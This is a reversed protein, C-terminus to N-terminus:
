PRGALPQSSHGSARSGSLHEDPLDLASPSQVTIAKLTLLVLAVWVLDAVLLHILQLPLPALLGLNLMGIMLQVVVVTIVLGAQRPARRMWTSAIWLIYTAAAVALLPHIVRLRLLLSSTAAMDLQVGAALSHSPFLMDGLATIAGAVSVLATAGLAIWLPRPTDRLRLKAVGSQALWATATLMALLLFTNVLHASLSWVRGASQDKAVFRFLVLGAGILAEVLLFFMSWGSFRRLVHKRPYGLFAWVLLVLTACVDVGSMLRHTFEIITPVAMKQPLFQGSCTPWHAGCGDGSFSARVYAGWLIVPFNWALVCWAFRSFARRSSNGAFNM